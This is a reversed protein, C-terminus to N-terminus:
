GLARLKGTKIRQEVEDSLLALISDNYQMAEKINPQSEHWVHVWSNQKTVIKAGSLYFIKKTFTDERGYGMFYYGLSATDFISKIELAQKIHEHHSKTISLQSKCASFPTCPHINVLSYYDAKLMQQNSMSKIMRFGQSILLRKISDSIGLILKMDLFFNSCYVMDTDAVSVFDYDSSMRQLLQDLIYGRCFLDGAQPLNPIYIHQIEINDYVSYDIKNINEQIDEGIYVCVDFEGYNNAQDFSNLALKLYSDRGRKPILINIKTM